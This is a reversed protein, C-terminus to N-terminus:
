TGGGHDPGKGRRTYEDLVRRVNADDPKLRLVERFERIADDARGLNALALALNRHADGVSGASGQTFLLAQMPGVGNEALLDDVAIATRREDLGTAAQLAHRWHRGVQVLGIVPVLTGVYWLWGVTLYPRTRRARLVAATIGFLLAACVATKWVPVAVAHPYYMYLRAPWISKVLYDVYSLLANEVRLGVPITDLAVVAGGGRQALITAVSSAAALAFLPLKERTLTWM